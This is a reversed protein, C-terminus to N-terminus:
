LTGGAILIMTLIVFADLTFAILGIIILAARKM